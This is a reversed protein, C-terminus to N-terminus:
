GGPTPAPTAETEVPESTAESETTTEDSYSGGYGVGCVAIDGQQVCGYLSGGSLTSILTILDEPTDALLTITNGKKTSDFLLIGNGYRGVDGFGPVNIYESFDDLEIRFPKVYELLEDNPAYTGLILADGEPQEDAIEITTGLYRLSDQLGGLAAVLEATLHIDPTPYVQVTSQTFTFPFNALTITQKGGLTFDAINAILTANDAASHYPSTLFTLDGFVLVNGDESLAAGGEDPHHADDISSLTSGAGRLLILGSHSEVSHAGYLAIRKLGFTLEHKGFDDFFVNRFNGEHEEVNYLYNDNVTIGFSSLLPNIISADAYNVFNGNYDYYSMGRTADTFVILRGGRNVFAQIVRTEDASFMIAPSIIVYAGAYKLKYELLTSDLLTEVAGGRKEIAEKLSAAEAPQYLNAHVFDLLVVGKTQKIDEDASPTELPPQSLTLAQYDPTAIEPRDPAGRYFMLGRLLSPVILAALAIWIMNKKM